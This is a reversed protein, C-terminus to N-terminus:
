ERLNQIYFPEPHIVGPNCIRKPGLNEGAEEVVPALVNLNKNLQANVQDYEQKTEKSRPSSSSLAVLLANHDIRVLQFMRPESDM